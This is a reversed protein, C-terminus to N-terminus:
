DITKFGLYIRTCLGVINSMFYSNDGIVFRLLRHKYLISIITFATIISMILPTM